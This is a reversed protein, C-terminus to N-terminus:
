LNCKLQVLWGFVDEEQQITQRESRAAGGHVRKLEQRKELWDRGCQITMKSVGLYVVKEVLSM